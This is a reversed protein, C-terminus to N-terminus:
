QYWQKNSYIDGRTVISIVKTENNFSSNIVLYRKGKTKTVQYLGSCFSVLKNPIYLNVKM